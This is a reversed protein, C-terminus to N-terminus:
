ITQLNASSGQQGVKKKSNNQSQSESQQIGGNMMSIQSWVYSYFDGDIELFVPKRKPMNSQGRNQPDYSVSPYIKLVTYYM